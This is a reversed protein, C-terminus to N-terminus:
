LPWLFDPLYPDRHLGLAPATAAEVVYDLLSRQEAFAISTCMIIPMNPKTNVPFSSAKGFWM